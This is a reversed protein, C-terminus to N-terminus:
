DESASPPALTNLTVPFFPPRMKEPRFGKLVELAGGCIRGQCPGMGCRTKLKCDRSEDYPEIRQWTVDECRCVVTDPEALRGLEPRLAYTEALLEVFRNERLRRRRLRKVEAIKGAAAHGAIEGQLLAVDVGGIGTPEGACYVGDLSTQQREDVVVRGDVLACGLYDALAINPRLGFGCALLDCEIRQEGGATDRLVVAQIGDDGEARVPWTGYRLSVGLLSRAFGLAQIAKRPHTLTRRAFRGVNKFSTQEAIVLVRAGRRRALDAVALLLPGTGALVLRRSRVDMGGKILAQLGGAGLVGPLTWGPFPLLRETAGTAMILRSYRLRLPGDDAMAVALGPSPADIVPTGCLRRVGHRDLAQIWQRAAPPPEPAAGQRWIQGGLAPNDDVLIVSKGHGAATAAAAVGAPGGGIVLVDTQLEAM